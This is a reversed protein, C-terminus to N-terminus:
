VEHAVGESLHLHVVKWGGEDVLVTSIRMALPPGEPLRVQATGFVWAVDGRCRGEVEVADMPVPPHARLHAVLEDLTLNTDPGSAFTHVGGLDVAHALVRDVDRAQAALIWARATELAAAPARDMCPVSPCATRAEIPHELWGPRGGNHNGVM